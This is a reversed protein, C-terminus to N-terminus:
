TKKVKLNLSKLFVINEPSLKNKSHKKTCPTAREINRSQINTKGNSQSRIDNFGFNNSSNSTNFNYLIM